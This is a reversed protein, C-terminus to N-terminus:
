SLVITMPFVAHMLRSNPRRLILLIAFGVFVVNIVAWVWPFPDRKLLLLTEYHQGARMYSLPLRLSTDTERYVRAHFGVPWVGRLDARGVKLLRDGVELGQWPGERPVGDWFGILTPYDNPRQPVSVDLPINAVRGHALNSLYLAFWFVWIPVLTLILARDILGLRRV